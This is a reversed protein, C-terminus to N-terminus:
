IMSASTASFWAASSAACLSKAYRLLSKAYRSPM